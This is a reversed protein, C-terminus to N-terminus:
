SCSGATPGRSPSAALWESGAARQSDPTARRPLTPLRVGVPAHRRRPNLTSVAPLPYPLSPSLFQRRRPGAPAPWDIANTQHSPLRHSAPAPAAGTGGDGGKSGQGRPKHAPRPLRIHLPSPRSVRSCHALRSPLPLSRSTIRPRSLRTGSHTYRSATMSESSVEGSTERGEM